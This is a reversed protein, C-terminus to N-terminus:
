LIVKHISSQLGRITSETWQRSSSVSAPISSCDCSTGNGDHCAAPEGTDTRSVSRWCQRFRNGATSGWCGATATTTATSGGCGATASATSGRCGTTSTASAAATSGRRGSTATSGRCGATATTSSTPLTTATATATPSTTPTTSSRPIGTATAATSSSCLCTCSSCPSDSAGAASASAAKAVSGPLRSRGARCHRSSSARNGHLFYFIPGHLEGLGFRTTDQHTKVADYAAIHIWSSVTCSSLSHNNAYTGDVAEVFWGAWQSPESYADRTEAGKRPKRCVRRSSTPTTTGGWCGCSVEVQALADVQDDGRCDEGGDRPESTSRTAFLLTCCHTGRQPFPSSNGVRDQDGM